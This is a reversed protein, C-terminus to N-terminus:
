AEWREIATKERAEEQVSRVSGGETSVTGTGVRPKARPSASSKPKEIGKEGNLQTLCGRISPGRQSALRCRRGEGEREERQM